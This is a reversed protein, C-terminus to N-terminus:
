LQLKDNEQGTVYNYDTKDTQEDSDAYKAGNTQGTIYSYESDSGNEVAFATLSVGAATLVVLGAAIATIKKSIM